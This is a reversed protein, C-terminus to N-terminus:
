DMIIRSIDWENTYAYMNSLLFMEKSDLSGSTLPGQQVVILPIRLIQVNNCKNRLKLQLSESQDSRVWKGGM